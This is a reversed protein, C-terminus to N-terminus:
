WLGSKNAPLPASMTISGSPHCSPSGALWAEGLLNPPVNGHGDCGEPSYIAASLYNFIFYPLLWIYTYQFVKCILKRTHM